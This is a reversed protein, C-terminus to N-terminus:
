NRLLFNSAISICIVVDSEGQEKSSGRLYAIAKM